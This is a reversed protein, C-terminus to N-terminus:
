RSAFGLLLWGDVMRIEPPAIWEPSWPSEPTDQVRYLFRLFEHMKERPMLRVSWEVHWSSRHTHKAFMPELEEFFRLEGDGAHTGERSRLHEMHSSLPERYADSFGSVLSIAVRGNPNLKAASREILGAWASPPFYYLVHSLVILDFRKNADQLVRVGDAHNLSATAIRLRAREVVELSVDAGVLAAEPFCAGLEALFAGDGFGFDFIRRIEHHGALQRALAQAAARSRSEFTAAWDRYHAKTDAM